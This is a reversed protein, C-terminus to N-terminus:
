EPIVVRQKPAISSDSALVCPAPTAATHSRSLVVCRATWRLWAARAENRFSRYVDSM